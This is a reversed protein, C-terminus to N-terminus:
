KSGLALIDLPALISHLEGSPLTGTYLYLFDRLLAGVPIQFNYLPIRPYGLAVKKKRLLM